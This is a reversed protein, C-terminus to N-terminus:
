PLPITETTQSIQKVEKKSYLRKAQEISATLAGTVSLRITFIQKEEEPLEEYFAESLVTLSRHLKTVKHEVEQTRNDAIASASDVQALVYGINREISYERGSNVIARRLKTKGHADMKVGTDLTVREYDLRAGHPQDLVYSLLKRYEQSAKALNTGM